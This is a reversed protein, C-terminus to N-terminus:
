VMNYAVGIANLKEKMTQWVMKTAVPERPQWIYKITSAAVQIVRTRRITVVQISRVQARYAKIMNSTKTWSATGTTAACTSRTRISQITITILASRTM